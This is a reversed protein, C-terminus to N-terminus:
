LGSCSPRPFLSNPFLHTLVKEMDCLWLFGCVGKEGPGARVHTLEPLSVPLWPRPVVTMELGVTNVWGMTLLVFDLHPKPLHPLSGYIRALAVHQAVPPTLEAVFSVPSLTNLKGYCSLLLQPGSGDQLALEGGWGDAEATFNHFRLIQPLSSRSTLLSCM